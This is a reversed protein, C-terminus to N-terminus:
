SCPKCFDEFCSHIQDISDNLKDIDEYQKLLTKFFQLEDDSGNCKNENEDDNEGFLSSVIAASDMSKLGDLTDDYAGVISSEFNEPEKPETQTTQSMMQPRKKAEELEAKLVLTANAHKLKTDHLEGHALDLTHEHEEETAKHNAWLLCVGHDFENKAEQLQNWLESCDTEHKHVAAQLEIEHAKTTADIAAHLDKLQTAHGTNIAWLELDNVSKIAGMKIYNEHHIKQVIADHEAREITTNMKSIAM